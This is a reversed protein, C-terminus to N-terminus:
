KSKKTYSSEFFTINQSPIFDKDKQLNRLSNQMITKKNYGDYRNYKSTKTTNVEPSKGKKDTRMYTKNDFTGYNERRISTGTIKESIFTRNFNNVASEDNLHYGCNPCKVYYKLKLTPKNQNTSTRSNYIQQQSSNKMENKCNSIDFNNMKKSPEYKKIQYKNQSINQIQNTQNEKIEKPKQAQRQSRTQKINITPKVQRSPEYKNQTSTQPQTRRSQQQLQPKSQIYTKKKQQEQKQQPQFQNKKNIQEQKQQSQIQDRRNLQQQEIHTHIRQQVTNVTTINSRNNQIQIDKPFIKNQKAIPKSFFSSIQKSGAPNYIHRSESKQINNQLTPSQPQKKKTVVTSHFQYNNAKNASDNIQNIDTTIQNSHFVHRAREEKKEKIKPKQIQPKLYKNNEGKKELKKNSPKLETKTKVINKIIKPSNVQLNEKVNENKAEEPKKNAKLDTKLKVINIKESNEKSNNVSEENNFENPKYINTNKIESKPIEENKREKIQAKQEEEKEETKQEEKKEELKIEEKKGIIEKEKQTNMQNNDNQSYDVLENQDEEYENKQNLKNEEKNKNDGEEPDENQNEEMNNQEQVEVREEGEEEDEINEGGNEENYEEVEGGNDVNYQEEEGGEEINYEEQEGGDEVNDEEGDHEEKDEMNKDENYINQIDTNIEKTIFEDKKDNQQNEDQSM